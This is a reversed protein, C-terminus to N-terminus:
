TTFWQPLSFPCFPKLIMTLFNTLCFLMGLIRGFQVSSSQTVLNRGTPVPWRLIRRWLIRWLLFSDWIYIYLIKGM